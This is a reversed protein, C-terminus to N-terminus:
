KHLIISPQDFYKYETAFVFGPDKESYFHLSEIPLGKLNFGSYIYSTQPLLKGNIEPQIFDIAFGCFNIIFFPM